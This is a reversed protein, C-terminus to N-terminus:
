YGEKQSQAEHAIRSFIEKAKNYRIQAADLDHSFYQNWIGGPSTKQILNDIFNVFYEADDPNARVPLGDVSVFIAATHTQHGKPGMRRACLWGSHAFEQKSHLTLPVGPSVAGEQSAVVKGNRVLEIQGNLPKTSSWQIDV